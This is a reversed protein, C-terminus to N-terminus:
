GVEYITNGTRFRPIKKKERKIKDKESIKLIYTWTNSKIQEYKALVYEVM